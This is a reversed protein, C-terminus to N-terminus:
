FILFAEEEIDLVSTDGDKIVEVATFINPVVNHLYYRASNVKGNYFAYDHHDKGLEDIKAQAVVAQELILQGCILESTAHLIRTAYLPMMPMKQNMVYNAIAAQIEKYAAVAKKLIAMESTLVPHNAHQDAFAEIDALWQAFVKGKGMMWKRGVLDM